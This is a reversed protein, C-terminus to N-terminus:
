CETGKLLWCNKSVSNGKFLTTQKQGGESLTYAGESNVQSTATLTYGQGAATLACTMTYNSTIPTAVGCTGGGFNRHDLYYHEMRSSWSSLQSVADAARARRTYDNYAPLAVATLVSVIAVVIMLEILTFGTQHIKPMPLRFNM